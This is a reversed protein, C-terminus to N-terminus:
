SMDFTNVQSNAVGSGVLSNYECYNLIAKVNEGVSIRSGSRLYNAYIRSSGAFTCQSTTNENIIDVNNLNHKGLTSRFQAVSTNGDKVILKFNEFKTTNATLLICGNEYVPNTIELKSNIFNINEIINSNLQTIDFFSENSSGTTKFLCNNFNINEIDYGSEPSTVSLSRTRIFLAKYISECVINEININKNNGYITIGCSTNKGVGNSININSSGGSILFLANLNASSNALNEFIINSINVYEANIIEIVRSILKGYGKVNSINHNNYEVQIVSNASITDDNYLEVNNVEVNNSQIKILRKSVNYGKINTIIIHNENVDKDNQIKIADFDDTMLNDNENINYCNKFYCNNVNLLTKNIANYDTLDEVLICSGAGAFNGTTSDGRQKINEFDCGEINSKSGSYNFIIHTQSTNDDNIFNSFYCDNIKFESGDYNRIVTCKDLNGDFNIDKIILKGYNKFCDSNNCTIKHNYGNIKLYNNSEITIEGMNYDSILDIEKINLRLCSNIFSTINENTNIGYVKPNISDKIILKAKLGNTLDHIYGNDSTLNSDNIIIYESEGGDNDEYYGKTKVYMGEKLTIDSKMIGISNYFRIAKSDKVKYGNLQSFEM